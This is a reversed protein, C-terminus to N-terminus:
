TFTEMHCVYFQHLNSRLTCTGTVTRATSEIKRVTSSPTGSTLLMPWYGWRTIRELIKVTNRVNVNLASWFLSFCGLGDAGVWGLTYLLCPPCCGIYITVCTFFM